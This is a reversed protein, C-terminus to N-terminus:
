RYFDIKSVDIDVGKNTIKSNTRIYSKLQVKNIQAEACKPGLVVKTLKLPFISKNNHLPSDFERLPHYIGCGDNVIWKLTSQSGANPIYLLRYEDEVGFDDPKVFYRWIRMHTLGFRLGGIYPLKSLIKFLLVVPNNNGYCIPMLFFELSNRIEDLDVEYHLCVGRCDDGYLRWMTLDDSKSKDCLSLIFVENYKDIIPLPKRYLNFSDGTICKDLFFGESKDNMCALGCMSEHGDLLIRRLTGSSSYRCFERSPNRGSSKIVNNVLNFQNLLSVSVKRDKQSLDDHSLKNLWDSLVSIIKKEEDSGSKIEMMFANLNEIFGEPIRSDNFQRLSGVIEYITVKHWKNKAEKISPDYEQVEGADWVLGIWYGYEDVMRTVVRKAYRIDIKNDKSQSTSVLVAFNHHQEGRLTIVMDADNKRWSESLLPVGYKFSVIGNGEDAKEILEKVFEDFKM